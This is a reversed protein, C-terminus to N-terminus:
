RDWWREGTGDVDDREVDDREVDDDDLDDPDLDFLHATHQHAAELADSARRAHQGAHALAGAAAHVAHRADPQATMQDLGLRGAQQQALLWGALQDLLQPLMGTLAALAALVQDAQAPDTPEGHDSLTRHVLARVAQEAQDAQQGLTLTAEPGAARSRPARATRTTTTPTAAGTTAAGTTAAGTTTARRM